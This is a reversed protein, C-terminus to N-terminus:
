AYFPPPTPLRTSTSPTPGARRTSPPRSSGILIRLTPIHTPPIHTPSIHTPPIAAAAPTFLNLLPLRPPLFTFCCLCHCFLSSSRFSKCFSCCRLFIWFNLNLYSHINTTVPISSVNTPNKDTFSLCYLLLFYFSSHM